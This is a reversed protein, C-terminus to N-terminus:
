TGGTGRLAIVFSLGVLALTISGMVWREIPHPASLNAVTNLTLFAVIGWTAWALVESSLVPITVVSARALLAWGLLLLLIAQVGALSRFARTLVGAETPAKGGFVAAGFPAGPALAVQFAAVGRHTRCQCGCGGRRLHRAIHM